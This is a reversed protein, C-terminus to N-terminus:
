ATQDIPLIAPAEDAPAETKPQVFLWDHVYASVAKLRADSISERYVSSM